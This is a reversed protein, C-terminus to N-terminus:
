LSPYLEAKEEFLLKAADFGSRYSYDGDIVRIGKIGLEQARSLFGKQRDRNTSSTKEGAIYVLQRHGNEVLLDAIIPM